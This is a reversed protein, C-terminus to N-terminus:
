STGEASVVKELYGANNIVIDLSEFEQEIKAVADSVSQKDTVDLKLSLIKPEKRGAKLSAEKMQKEVDELGSRAAIAIKSAGARAFSIANDKGLGKSAGTILIVRDTLDFQEPKIFEYTDNRITSTFDLGTSQKQINPAQSM